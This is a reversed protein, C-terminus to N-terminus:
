SCNTLHSTYDVGGLKSLRERHEVITKYLEKDEYAKKAFDTTSIREIDYLHRSLRDVRIKEKPRQFEEHLLFLKELFTREPNVCPIEVPKDAFAKDGFCEGVLSSFKRLSYPDRLSRGGIELM